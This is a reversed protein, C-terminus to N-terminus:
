ELVVEAGLAILEKQLKEAEEKEVNEKLVVPASEIFKKAQFIFCLCYKLFGGKLNM